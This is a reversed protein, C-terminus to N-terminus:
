VAQQNGHGDNGNNDNNRNAKKLGNKHGKEEAEHDLAGQFGDIFGRMAVTALALRDEM